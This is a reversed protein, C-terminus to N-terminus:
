DHRRVQCPIIEAGTWLAHPGRQSRQYFFCPAKGNGKEQPLRYGKQETMLVCQDEHYEDLLSVPIRFPAFAKSVEM